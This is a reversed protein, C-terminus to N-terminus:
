DKLNEVNSGLSLSSLKEPSALILEGAIEACDIILQRCFLAHDRCLWESHWKKTLERCLTQNYKDHIRNPIQNFIRYLGSKEYLQKKAKVAIDKRDTGDPLSSRGHVASVAIIAGTIAGCTDGYLGAGGGLGTAIKIADNPLGTDVASFVAKVVCESCNYGASFIRKSNEKIEDIKNQDPM